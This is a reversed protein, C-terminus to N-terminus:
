FQQFVYSNQQNKFSKEIAENGIKVLSFGIILLAIIVFFSIVNVLVGEGTKSLALTNNM